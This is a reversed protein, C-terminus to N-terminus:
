EIHEKLIKPLEEIHCAYSVPAVTRIEAFLIEMKRPTYHPGDVIVVLAVDEKESTESFASLLAVM